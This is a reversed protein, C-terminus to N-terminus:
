ASRRSGSGRSTRRAPGRRRLDGRREVLARGRPRDEVGDEASASATSTSTPTSTSARPACSRLLREALAPEERELVGAGKQLVTVRVGLRTLAQSLEISIPGAGIMVLSAPARDLEFIRESTLYGAEALGPSRRRRRAAAPRSCSTARRTSARRRRPRDDALDPSRRRAARRRGRRSASPTTTPARSSSSSRTSARGCARPTSRRSSPADPRLRRRPADHARGEGLRAAGQVARLRDVPLRRRRPRARGRRGQHRAEARVRRRGHRGLGHRRHDPRLAARRRGVGVAAASIERKLIKGTPGKPLEDVFWIRRPYKYGAVQEKVFASCSRPTSRSRRGEARRGRRGGRGVRRAPRRRGGGRARGPARLAGGRGRASLRQLRRPHHAGEQSRRHLLLRGRRGEGHRRTAFWGDKISEATAEPREWYGKMVNHGKILIEGIEGPAVEDGDDDVVKM